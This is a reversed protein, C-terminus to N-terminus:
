QNAPYYRITFLFWTYITPQQAVTIGNKPLALYKGSFSSLAKAIQLLLRTDPLFHLLLKSNKFPENHMTAYGAASRIESLM